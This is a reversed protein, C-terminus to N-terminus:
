PSAGADPGRRSAVDPLHGLLVRPRGAGPAIAHLDTGLDDDPVTARATAEPRPGDRWGVWAYEPLLRVFRYARVPDTRAKLRESAGREMGSYVNYGWMAAGFPLLFGAIFGEASGADVALYIVAAGGVIGVATIGVWLTIGAAVTAAYLGTEATSELAYRSDGIVEAIANDRAQHRVYWPLSAPTLQLPLELAGHTVTAASRRGRHRFGVNRVGRVPNGHLQPDWFPQAGVGGLVVYLTDPPEERDGLERAWDLAPHLEAAVRFDVQADEWSGCLSWMVALLVRLLPDDFHGEESWRATLLHSAQRAEVCGSEPEGRLSFGWSLLLHMWILEHESAYYGEPTEAYFLARVERSVEFRVRDELLDRYRLLADIEPEGRLLHLYTREMTTIFTDAEGEPFAALAEGPRGQELAAESAAYDDAILLAEGTCGVGALALATFLLARVLTGICRAMRTGM